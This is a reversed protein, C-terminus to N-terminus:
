ILAIGSTNSLTLPQYCNQCEISWWHQLYLCPELWTCVRLQLVTQDQDTGSCIQLHDQSMWSFLVYHSIRCTSLKCSGTYRPVCQLCTSCNYLTNAPCLSPVIPGCCATPLIQQNQRTACYTLFFTHRVWSTLNLCIATTQNSCSVEPQSGNFNTVWGSPYSGHTLSTDM